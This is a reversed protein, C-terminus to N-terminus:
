LSMSDTTWATAEELTSRPTTGTSFEVSPMILWVRSMIAMVLSFTMWSNMSGMLFQRSPVMGLSLILFTKEWGWAM